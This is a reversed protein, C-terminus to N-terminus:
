NSKLLRTKEIMKELDKIMSDKFPSDSKEWYKKEEEMSLLCEDAYNDFKPYDKESKDKFEPMYKFDFKAM